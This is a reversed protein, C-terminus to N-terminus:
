DQRWGMWDLGQGVLNAGQGVGHAVDGWVGNQRGPQCGNANICDGWSRGGAQQEAFCRSSCDSWAGNQRWGMWDLGQGALNAASGVGHAVDGWTGNQRWGM